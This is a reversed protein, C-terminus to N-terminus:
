AGSHLLAMHKLPLGGLVFGSLADVFAICSAEQMVVLVGIYLLCCGAQTCLWLHLCGTCM